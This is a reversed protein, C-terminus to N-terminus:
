EETDESYAFILAERLNKVIDESNHNLSLSFLAKRLSMRNATELSAKSNGYEVDRWSEYASIEMFPTIFSDTISSFCAWEGDAEVNYRPM